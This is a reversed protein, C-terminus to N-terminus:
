SELRVPRAGLGLCMKAKAGTRWEYRSAVRSQLPVLLTEITLIGGMDDCAEQWQLANM